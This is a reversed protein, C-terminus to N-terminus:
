NPIPKSYQILVSSRMKGGLNHCYTVDNVRVNHMSIFPGSRVKKLSDLLFACPVCLPVCYRPNFHQVYVVPYIIKNKM